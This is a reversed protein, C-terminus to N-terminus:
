SGPVHMKELIANMMRKLNDFCQIVEQCLDISGKLNGKRGMTEMQHALRELKKASIMACSGNIAHATREVADANGSKVAAELASILGPMDDLFIRIIDKFLARDGEIRDLLDDSDFEARLSDSKLDHNRAMRGEEAL